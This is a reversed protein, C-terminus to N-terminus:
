PMLELGPMDVEKGYTKVLYARVVAIQPTSGWEVDDLGRFLQAPTKAFFGGDFTIFGGGSDQRVSSIEPFIGHATMIPGIAAWNTCYDPHWAGWANEASRWSIYGEEALLWPYRWQWNLSKAMLYNLQKDSLNDIKM